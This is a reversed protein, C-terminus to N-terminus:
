RTKSLPGHAFHNREDLQLCGKAIRFWYGSGRRWRLCCFVTLDIGVGELALVIALAYLGVRAFKGFLVRMSPTLNNSTSIQSEAMRSIVNALYLFLALLLGAKIIGLISIRFEGLNLAMSELTTMVPDLLGLLNLAAVSWAMTALTRAWFADRILGSALRIVVWATLLSVAGEM